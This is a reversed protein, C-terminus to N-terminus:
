KSVRDTIKKELAKHKVPVGFLTEMTIEILEIAVKLEDKEAISLQHMAFNGLFRHTHLSTALSQSILGNSGLTDIRDKFEPGSIKYHNCIGEILARLGAACLIKLDYNYCQLVEQYAKRLLIPIGVIRKEVMSNEMREPYFTEFTKDNSIKWEGSAEDIDMFNTLFDIIRFSISECGNCEIIQYSYTGLYHQEIVGENEIDTTDVIKHEAKISHNTITNCRNCFAKFKIAVSNIPLSSDM